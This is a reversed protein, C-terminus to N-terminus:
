PSCAVRVVSTPIALSVLFDADRLPRLGAM